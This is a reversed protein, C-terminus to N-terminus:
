PLPVFVSHIVIEASDFKTEPIANQILKALQSGKKVKISRPAECTITVNDGRKNYWIKPKSLNSVGNYIVGDCSSGVYDGCSGDDNKKYVHICGKDDIEIYYTFAQTVNVFALVFFLISVISKKM